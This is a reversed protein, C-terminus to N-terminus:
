QSYDKQTYFLARVGFLVSAGLMMAAFLWFFHTRPLDKFSALLAVLVQGLSVTLMWFGMVTSKMRKPAQTYAFELGTISVMVEGITVLLYPVIQWGVNVKGPGETDIEQQILAVAAFSIATIVMGATIRRLSTAEYGLKNSLKYLGNMAPILAMVMLPNLAAIQSPLLQLGLFNLDMSKAQIIWTSGHQEFLAWFISVLFFVSIVKLVAVSGETSEGGYRLVAPRWFGSRALPHTMNQAGPEATGFSPAGLSGPGGATAVAPSRLGLTQKITFFMIALFGDDPRLRQRIAFLALGIALSLASCLVMAWGPLKLIPATVFLQGFTMFLFVASTADLLGIPGGPNAKVHVFKNRGLWFFLTAVGMLIGPLAFAVSTNFKLRLYPIFLTAFFSGFNIIFYFAQFITKVRFWNNKGFQDGVNASVCPKIGGSGVAILALGLGMGGISNEAVALVAHGACYVLSLWLITNYKGILRDAALAGRRPCAYAGACL